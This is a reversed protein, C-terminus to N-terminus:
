RPVTRNAIWRQMRPMCAMPRRAVAPSRLIQPPFGLERGRQDGRVVKGTLAYERGLMQGALDM